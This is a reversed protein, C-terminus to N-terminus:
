GKLFKGPASREERPGKGCGSTQFVGKCASDTQGRSSDFFSFSCYDPMQDLPISYKYLHAIDQRREGIYKIMPEECYLCQYM